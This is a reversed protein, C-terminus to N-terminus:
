ENMINRRQTERGRNKQSERGRHRLDDTDRVETGLLEEAV